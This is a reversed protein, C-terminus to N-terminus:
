RHIVLYDADNNRCTYKLGWYDAEKKTDFVLRTPYGNEVYVLMYM